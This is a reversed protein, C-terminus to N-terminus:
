VVRQLGADSLSGTKLTIKKLEGVKKLQPTQYMKKTGSHNQQVQNM